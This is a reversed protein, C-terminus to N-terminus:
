QQWAYSVKAFAQRGSPELNGTVDLFARQDGYGLYLVSQFNLKYAFLGSLSVDQSRVGVPFTYLAPDRDTRVHQVILRAFSRANFTYTTRLREVQATFLRGELGPGAHVDLWRLNGTAQLEIHNGPRLSSSASLTVGSGERANAFDIEDGVYADM